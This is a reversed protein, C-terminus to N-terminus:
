QHSTARFHPPLIERPAPLHRTLLHQFRRLPVLQLRRQQRRPVGHNARPSLGRVLHPSPRDRRRIQPPSLQQRSQISPAHLLDPHEITSVVEREHRDVQTPRPGVGFGPRGILHGEHEVDRVFLRRRHLHIAPLHELHRSRTHDLRCEREVQHARREHRIVGLVAPQRKEHTPYAVRRIPLLIPRGPQLHCCPQPHRLTPQLHTRLVARQLLGESAVGRQRRPLTSALHLRHNAGCLHQAVASLLRDHAIVRQPYVGPSIAQLQRRLLEIHSRVGVELPLLLHPRLLTSRVRHRHHPVLKLLLKPAHLSRIRSPPLAHLRRHHRLPLLRLPHPRRQLRLRRLRVRRAHSRQLLEFRLDGRLTRRSIHLPRGVHRCLSRRQRLLPCLLGRRQRRLPRLALRLQGRHHLDSTLVAMSRRRLPDEGHVAQQLQHPRRGARLHRDRRQNLLQLMKPRDQRRPLLVRPRRRQWRRRHLFRRRHLIRRHGRHRQRPLPGVLLRLLRCPQCAEVPRGVGDLASPSLPRHTPGRRREGRLVGIVPEPVHPM